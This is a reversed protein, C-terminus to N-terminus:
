ETIILPDGSLYSRLDASIGAPLPPWRDLSIRLTDIFRFLRDSRLWARIKRSPQGERTTPITEFFGIGLVYLGHVHANAGLASQIDLLARAITYPDWRADAPLGIVFTRPSLSEAEVPQMVTQSNPVPALYRRTRMSRVPLMHAIDSELKTRDLHMTIEVVGAVVEIPLISHSEDYILPPAVRRDFIIRDIAPSQTPSTPTDLVSGKVCDFGLPFYPRLLEREVFTETASGKGTRDNIAAQKSELARILSEERKAFSENLDM